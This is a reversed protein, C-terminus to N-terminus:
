VPLTDFSKVVAAPDVIPQPKNGERVCLVARCGAERAAALEAEVDSVFLLRDPAVGLSAAIRRYSEASTKLGAGTDFYASLWPTLDGASTHAFLLRQALVSGSSYIAVRVGAKKWRELAPLVDSYMDSRLAGSEYGGKWIEGQIRKLVPSKRDRDM